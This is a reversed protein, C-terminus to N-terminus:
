RGPGLPRGTRCRRAGETAGVGGTGTGADIAIAPMSEGRGPGPPLLGTGAEHRSVGGLM